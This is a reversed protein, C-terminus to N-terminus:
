KANVPQGAQDLMYRDFVREFFWEARLWTELKEADADRSETIYGLMALEGSVDEIQGRLGDFEREWAAVYTQYWQGIGGRAARLVKQEGRLEEQKCLWKWTLSDYIKVTGRFRLWLFKTAASDATTGYVLKLQGAFEAVQTDLNNASLEKVECLANYAGVLRPKEGNAKLTRSVGYANAFDEIAKAGSEQGHSQSQMASLFKRRLPEDTGMWEALYAVAAVRLDDTLAMPALTFSCPPLEAPTDHCM